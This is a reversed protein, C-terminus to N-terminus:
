PTAPSYICIRVRQLGFLRGMLVRYGFWVYTFGVNLVVTCVKGHDIYNKLVRYGFKSTDASAGVVAFRSFALFEAIASPMMTAEDEAGTQLIAKQLLAFM